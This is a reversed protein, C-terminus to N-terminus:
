YKLFEESKALTEYHQRKGHVSQILAMLRPAQKRATEIDPPTAGKRRRQSIRGGPLIEIEYGMEHLEAIAAQREAEPVVEAETKRLIVYGYHLAALATELDRVIQSVQPTEIDAPLLVQIGSWKRGIREADLNLSKGQRTYVVSVVERFVPEIRVSFDKGRYEPRRFGILRSLWKM